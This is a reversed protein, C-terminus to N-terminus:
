AAGGHTRNWEAAWRREAEAECGPCWENAPYRGHRTCAVSGFGPTNIPTDRWPVAQVIADWEGSDILDLNVDASASAAAPAPNPALDGWMALDAADKETSM